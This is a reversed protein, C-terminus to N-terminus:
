GTGAVFKRAEEVLRADTGGAWAYNSIVKDKRASPLSKFTEWLLREEM